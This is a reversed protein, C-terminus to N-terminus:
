EALGCIGCYGELDDAVVMSVPLHATGQGALLQEEEGILVEQMRRVAQSWESSMNLPLHISM